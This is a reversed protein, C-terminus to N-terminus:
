CFDNIRHKKVISQRKGTGGYIRDFKEAAEELNKQMKDIHERFKKINEQREDRPLAPLDLMQDLFNVEKRLRLLEHIYDAESTYTRELNKEYNATCVDLRKNLVSFLAKTFRQSVGDQWEIQGKKMAELIEPEKNGDKIMDFISVWEAYTEPPKIM